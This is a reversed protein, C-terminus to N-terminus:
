GVAALGWWASHVDGPGLVALGAGSNFADPACSMPELALGVRDGDPEPRDATHVQVWGAWQGWTMQVGGPSGSGEPRRLQATVVGDADATLDTFAHDIRRAGIAAGARFDCDVTEVPRTGTPALRDDVEVRADAPLHLVADDVLPTGCTLYPHITCGYPAPEKGTNQAALEIRLGTDTMTYAAQLQIAFPYGPQPVLDLRLVVGTAAEDAVAWRRDFAFGHLAHGRAPENIPLQHEVGAFRYRGGVVRNPWPAVVVGRFAGPPDGAGSPVVLNQGRHTLSLLAAGLVDVDATYDGAILRM